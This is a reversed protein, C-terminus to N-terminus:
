YNVGRRMSEGYGYSHNVTIPWSLMSLSVGSIQLGGRKVTADGDRIINACRMNNTSSKWCILRGILHSYFAAATTCYNPNKNHTIILIRLGKKRRSLSVQWFNIIKIRAHPFKLGGLCTRCNLLIIKQYICKLTQLNSSAM